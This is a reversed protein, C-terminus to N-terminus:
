WHRRSWLARPGHREWSKCIAPCPPVTLLFVAFLFSVLSYQGDCFREGFRSINYKYFCWFHLPVVLFFTGANEFENRRWQLGSTAKVTIMISTRM